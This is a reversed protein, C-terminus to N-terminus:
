MGCRWNQSAGDDHNMMGGWAHDCSEMRLAVSVKVGFWRLLGELEERQLAKLTLPTELQPTLMESKPNM